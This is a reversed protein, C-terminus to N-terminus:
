EAPADGGDGAGDDAATDGGEAGEEADDTTEEVVKVKAISVVQDEPAGSAIEVGEPLKIDSITMSEGLELTEVDVEIYEPLNKPLVSIDLETLNHFVTGGGQKVGVATEENVFHLPVSVRIKEGAVVRLLDLHVIARKAPHRQIDKLIADQDEKDVKVNLISSYFAENDLHHLLENHDVSLARPERGGGYMIVPVKGQRRLRRSAGKGMDDRFEAVLEFKAAM